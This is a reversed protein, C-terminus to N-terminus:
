EIQTGCTKDGKWGTDHDQNVLEGNGWGPKTETATNLFECLWAIDAFAVCSGTHADQASARWVFGGNQMVTWLRVLFAQYNLTDAM